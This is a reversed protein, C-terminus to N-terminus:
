SGRNRIVVGRVQSRLGALRPLRFGTLLKALAFRIYARIDEEGVEVVAVLAYIRKRVIALFLVKPRQGLQIIVHQGEHLFGSCVHGLMTRSIGHKSTVYQGRKGAGSSEKGSLHYQDGLGPRRPHSGAALPAHKKEEM